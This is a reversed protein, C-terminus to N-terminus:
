SCAGAAACVFGYEGAAALEQRMGKYLVGIGSGGVGNNGEGLATIGKGEGEGEQV